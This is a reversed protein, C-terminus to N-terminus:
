QQKSGIEKRKKKQKNDCKVWGDCLTSTIKQTTKFIGEGDLKKKKKKKYRYINEM